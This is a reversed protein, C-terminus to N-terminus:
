PMVVRYFRSSANKATTDLYSIRGEADALVTARTLWSAADAKTAYLVRCSAGPPVTGRLLMNGDAQRTITLASVLPQPALAVRYFRQPVQKASIDLAVVNSLSDATVNTLTQWYAPNPTAAFQVGCVQGPAAKYNLRMSGDTQRTIQLRPGTPAPPVPPTYYLENSPISELGQADYSVAYIRYTATAILNTIRCLLNSGVNVRTTASQQALGYYIAHGRVNPDSSASWALTIPAATIVAAESRTLSFHLVACMLWVFFGALNKIRMRCVVSLKSVGFFNERVTILFVQARV